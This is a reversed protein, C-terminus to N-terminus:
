TEFSPVHGIRRFTMYCKLHQCWKSYLEKEEKTREDYQKSAFDEGLVPTLFDLMKFSGGDKGSVRPNGVVDMGSADETSVLLNWEMENPFTMLTSIRKLNVPLGSLLGDFIHGIVTAVQIPRGNVPSMSIAQPHEGETFRNYSSEWSALGTKKNPKYEFHEWAKPPQFIEDPIIMKNGGDSQNSYNNDPELTEDLWDSILSQLADIGGSRVGVALLAEREIRGRRLSAATYSVKLLLHEQMISAPAMRFKVAMDSRWGELRQRLDDLQDVREFKQNKQLTDRYNHWTQLSKLVEGDGEELESKPIQDLDVGKKKLKRLTEQLQKEQKEEVERVSAPVPIVIPGSDLAEWGRSTLDYGSWSVKQYFFNYKLDDLFKIM